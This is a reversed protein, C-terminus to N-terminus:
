KNDEVIIPQDAETYDHEITSVQLNSYILFIQLGNQYNEFEDKLLKLQEDTLPICTKDVGTAEDIVMLTKPCDM